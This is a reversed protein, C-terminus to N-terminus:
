VYRADCHLALPPSRVGACESELEGLRAGSDKLTRVREPLGWRAPFCGSYRSPLLDKM